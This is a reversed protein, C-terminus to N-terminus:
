RSRYAAIHCCGMDRYMGGTHYTMIDNIYGNHFFNVHEGAFVNNVSHENMILIFDLPM